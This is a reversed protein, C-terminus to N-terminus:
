DKEKKWFVGVKELTANDITTVEGNEDMVKSRLPNVLVVTHVVGEIEISRGKYIEGRLVM